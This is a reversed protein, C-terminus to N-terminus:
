AHPLRWDRVELQDIWEFHNVNGTVLIRGHEDATAAIVLDADNRAAGLRYAKVWLEAARDLITSSIPILESHACFEDFRELQRTAEQRRYGRVIEYRTFASFAIVGHEKLYSLANHKVVANRAKLIESVMDTDLLAREM